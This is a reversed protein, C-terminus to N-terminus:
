PMRKLVKKGPFGKCIDSDNSVLFIEDNGNWSCTWSDAPLPNRSCLDNCAANSPVCTRSLQQATMVDGNMLLSSNITFQCGSTFYVKAIIKDLLPSLESTIQFAEADKCIDVKVSNCELQIMAWRGSLDMGQCTQPFNAATRFGGSPPFPAQCSTIQQDGQTLEVVPAADQENCAALSFLAMLLFCPLIKRAM